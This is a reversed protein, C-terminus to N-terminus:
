ATKITKLYQPDIPSQTQLTVSNYIQLNKFTYAALLPFSLPFRTLIGHPGAATLSSGLGM